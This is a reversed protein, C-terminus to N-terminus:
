STSVPRSRSTVQAGARVRRLGGYRLVFLALGTLTVPVFLVCRVLIAFTVAAGGTIHLAKLGFVVAADFTGVYGPAAPILAFFASLVVLFAGDVLSLDLALSQAVLWFITAEIGWVVLSVGGLLVGTPGLLPRGSRVLPRVRAAFADWRGNRRGRLYLWLVAAGGAIVALAVLAPLRGMPAGAVGAFTLVAFLLVLSVADLMRESAISGLIEAKGASSRQSLLVTRLLEGGRAPLVTNGFYGVTVLAYADSTRHGAGLGRLIRHWRWGRVLTAVAYLAVAAALQAWAHATKPLEPTPQRAAWWTVAALACASVVIGLSRRRM